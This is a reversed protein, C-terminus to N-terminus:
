LKRSSAILKHCLDWWRKTVLAFFLHSFCHDAIGTLSWNGILQLSTALVSFLWRGRPSRKPQLSTKPAANKAVQHGFHKGPLWQSTVLRETHVQRSGRKPPWLHDYDYHSQSIVSYYLVHHYYKCMVLDDLVYLLMCWIDFTPRSWHSRQLVAYYIGDCRVLGSCDGLRGPWWNAGSRVLSYMVYCIQRIPQVTIAPHQHIHVHDLWVM